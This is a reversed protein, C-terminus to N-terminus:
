EVLSISLQGSTLLSTYVLAAVINKISWHILSNSLFVFTLEIGQTLFLAYSWVSMGCFACDFQFSETVPKTRLMQWFIALFTSQPKGFYLCFNAFTENQHLCLFDTQKRPPSCFNVLIVQIYIETELHHIFHNNILKFHNTTWSDITEGGIYLIEVDVSDQQTETKPITEVQAKWQAILKLCFTSFDATTNLTSFTPRTLVSVLLSNTVEPQVCAHWLFASTFNGLCWCSSTTWSDALTRM